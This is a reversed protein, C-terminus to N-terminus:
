KKLINTLIEFIDAESMNELQSIKKDECGMERCLKSAAKALSGHGHMTGATLKSSKDALVGGQRQSQLSHLMAALSPLDQRTATEEGASIFERKWCNLRFKEFANIFGQRWRIASSGYIQEAGSGSSQSYPDPRESKLWVFLEERIRRSTGAFATVPLSLPQQGVAVITFDLGSDVPAVIVDDGGAKALDNHVPLVRISSGNNELIVALALYDADPWISNDLAVLSQPRLDSMM